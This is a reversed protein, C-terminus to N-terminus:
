GTTYVRLIGESTGVAIAVGGDALTTGALNTTVRGPLSMEAIVSVGDQTRTLIGVADLDQTPILVDLRGDGTVDTALAM